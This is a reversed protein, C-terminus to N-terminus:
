NNLENGGIINYPKMTFIIASKNKNFNWDVFIDDVKTKLIAEFHNNNHLYKKELNRKTNQLIEQYGQKILEKEITVLIDNRIILLTRTNLQCSYITPKAKEVKQSINSIELHIQEKGEYQDTLWLDKENLNASIGVLIGSRNHLGWDYYFEGINIETVAKVFAKIEPFLTRMIVDRTQRFIEEQNQDILIKEAPTMFSRLYISIVSKEITVFISEPGKGFSDRLLKGIFSALEKQSSSNTM